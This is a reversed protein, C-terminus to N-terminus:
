PQDVKASKSLIWEYLSSPMLASMRAAAFEMPWPFGVHHRKRAISLMIERAAESPQMLFPKPHSLKSIAPTDIFGPHVCCIEVGSGYLEVGLSQCLSTIGAKTCGYVSAGPVGRYGALSSVACLVGSNRALMSPLVLQFMRITGLLNTMVVAQADVESIKVFPLGKHNIGANAIAIDVAGHGREVEKHARCLDDSRTVDTAVVRINGGLSAAAAFLRESNRASITM